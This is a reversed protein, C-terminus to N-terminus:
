ITVTFPATLVAIKKVHGSLGAILEGGVSPEPSDFVWAAEFLGTTGFLLQLLFGLSHSGHKAWLGSGLLLTAAVTPRRAKWLLLITSEM